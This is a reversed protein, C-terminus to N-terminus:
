LTNIIKELFEKNETKERNIRNLIHLGTDKTVGIETALTRSSYKKESKLILYIAFFWKQLDV